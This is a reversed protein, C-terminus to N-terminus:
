GGRSENNNRTPSQLRVAAAVAVEGGSGGSGGSGGGNGGSGGNSSADYESPYFGQTRSPAGGAPTPEFTVWGIGDLAVEAWQHAQDSNVTQEDDTQGILWGSVVRAPIGISRALVVFASSFVGCTGEEHDFLFWDVPDQGPPPRPGGPEYFAYSYNSELYEEIAKARAYVGSEGETIQRALVGIRDPLGEPLAM